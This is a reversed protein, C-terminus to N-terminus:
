KSLDIWEMSVMLMTATSTVKQNIFLQKNQEPDSNEEFVIDIGRVLELSLAKIDDMSTIRFQIEPKLKKEQWAFSIFDSCTALKNQTTANQWEIANSRHLTGGEYWEQAYVNTSLMLLISFLVFMFKM